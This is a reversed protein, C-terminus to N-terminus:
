ISFYFTLVRISSCTHTRRISIHRIRKQSCRGHRTAPMSNELQNEVCVFQIHAGGDDSGTLVVVVAIGTGCAVGYREIKEAREIWATDCGTSGSGLTTEFIFSAGLFSCRGSRECAAFVISILAPSCTRGCRSRHCWGNQRSTSPILHLIPHTTPPRPLTSPTSLPRFNPVAFIHTDSLRNPNTM